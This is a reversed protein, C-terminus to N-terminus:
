NNQFDLKFTFDQESPDAPEKENDPAGEVQCFQEDPDKGEEKCFVEEL